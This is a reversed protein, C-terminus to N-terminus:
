RGTPTIDGHFSLFRTADDVSAHAYSYFFFPGHPHSNHRLYLWIPKESQFSLVLLILNDEDLADIRCSARSIRRDMFGVIATMNKDIMLDSITNTSNRAADERKQQALVMGMDPIYNIEEIFRVQFLLSRNIIEEEIIHNLRDNAPLRLSTFLLFVVCFIKM